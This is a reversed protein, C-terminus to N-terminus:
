NGAAIIQERQVDNLSLWDELNTGAPPQKILGLNFRVKNTYTQLGAKDSGFDDEIVKYDPSTLFKNFAKNAEMDNWTLGKEREVQQLIKKAQAQALETSAILQNQKSLANMKAVDNALEQAEIGVEISNIQADLKEIGKEAASIGVKTQRNALIDAAVQLGTGPKQIQSSLQAEIEAQNAGRFLVSESDGDKRVLTFGSEENGKLELSTAAGDDVKDYYKILGPLGGKQLANNAEAATKAALKQLKDLGYENITKIVAAKREPPLNANEYLRITAAQADEVTNINNDKRYKESNVLTIIDDEIKEFGVLREAAEIKQTDMINSLEGGRNAIKQAENSLGQSVKEGPLLEERRKTQSMTDATSAITSELTADQQKLKGPLLANREGTISQTNATNARVNGINANALATALIGRQKIQEDLIARNLVNEREKAELNALSQRVALGKDPQGYKTYVDGLAKYRAKELEDGELGFGLGGEATFKEDDMLRSTEIDRGIKQFTGYVSNFNDAFEQWPSKRAM